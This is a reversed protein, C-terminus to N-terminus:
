RAQNSPARPDRPTPALVKIDRPMSVAEGHRNLYMVPKRGIAPNDGIYIVRVAAAVDMLSGIAPSHLIGAALSELRAGAVKPPEFGRKVIGALVGAEKIVSPFLEPWHLELSGVDGTATLGLSLYSTWVPIGSVVRTARVIKRLLTRDGMRFEGDSVRQAVSGWESLVGVHAIEVSPVRAARMVKRCRSIATKDPGTWAGLKGLYGYRDDSAFITRSDLRRSFTVNGARIGSINEAAGFEPKRFRFGAIDSAAKILEASEQRAPYDKSKSADAMATEM